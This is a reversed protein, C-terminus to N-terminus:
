ASPPSEDSHPPFRRFPKNWGQACLFPQSPAFNHQQFNKNRLLYLQQSPQPECAHNQIRIQLVDQFCRLLGISQFCLANPYMQLTVLPPPDNDDFDKSRKIRFSHNYM